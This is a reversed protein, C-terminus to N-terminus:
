QVALTGTPPGNGAINGAIRNSGYSLIDGGSAMLGTGNDTVTTNSLRIIAGSQSNIGTSVNAFSVTDNLNLIAGSDAYFGHVNSSAWSHEVTAQTGGTIALGANGNSHMQVRDLNVGLTSGGGTLALIGTQGNNSVVTNTVFLHGSTRQDVIGRNTFGYIKCNEVRVDGASLIVIGSIGNGVGNIDLNRLIVVDTGAANVTIGNTLSGLVGSLGAHGDITISKTITVTGFGGSDLADIEGSPATKSISGAFTKCPATRSCPNVDDGVGSVWTRSVQARASPVLFWVASMV